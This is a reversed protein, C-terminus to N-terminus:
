QDTDATVALVRDGPSPPQSIVLFRVHDRTRNFVQHPTLPAVEIGQGDALAWERGGLNIALEGELVFFFQRSRRHAHRVEQAGPPMRELLVSLEPTRVLHWADCPREPDGWAYHEASAVSVRQGASM